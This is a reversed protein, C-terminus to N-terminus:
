ESRRFHMVHEEGIPRAKERRSTVLRRFRIPDSVNVIRTLGEDGAIETLYKPTNFQQRAFESSGVVMIMNGHRNLNAIIQKLAIRMETLYVAGIHARLPNSTVVDNLVRDAEAVNTSPLRDEYDAKPFHDRGILRDELRRLESSRVIGLWGLSLSSFRSYKQAGPYPPSTLILDVSRAHASPERVDHEVVTANCTSGPSRWAIAKLADEIVRVNLEFQQIPDGTLARTLHRELQRHVNGGPEYRDLRLKVPVPFRPNALSLQMATKSFALRLLDNTPGSSLSNIALALRSLGDVARESYWYELNVVDPPSPERAFRARRVVRRLAATVASPAVSQTKVRSILCALPNSDWGVSPFQTMQAELLVTGAGCFPDFITLNPHLDIGPWGGRLVAQPIHRALMGPYPHIAHARRLDPGLATRASDLAEAAVANKVNVLRCRYETLLLRSPLRPLLLSLPAEGTARDDCPRIWSSRLQQARRM